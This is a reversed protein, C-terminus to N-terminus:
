SVGGGQLFVWTREVVMESYGEEGLALYVVGKFGPVFGYIDQGIVRGGVEVGGQREDLESFEVLRHM